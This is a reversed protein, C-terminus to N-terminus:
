KRCVPHSVMWDLCMRGRRFSLDLDGGALVDQILHACWSPHRGACVCRDWKWGDNRRGGVCLQWSLETPGGNGM